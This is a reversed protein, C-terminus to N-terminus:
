HYSPAPLPPHPHLRPSGALLPLAPAFTRLCFPAQPMRPVLAQTAPVDLPLFVPVPPALDRLARYTM